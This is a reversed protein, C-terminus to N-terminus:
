HERILELFPALFREAKATGIGPITLGQEITQPRLRTLAELTKDTFIAFAPLNGQEKALRLRLARMKEFLAADFGVERLVM